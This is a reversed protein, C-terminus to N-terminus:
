EGDSSDSSASAVEVTGYASGAFFATIQYDGVQSNGGAGSVREALFHFTRNGAAVPFVKTIGVTQVYSGSPATSPTQVDHDEGDGFATSSTSVGLQVETQTGNAHHMWVESTLTVIVYGAAPAAITISDIAQVTGDLQPFSGVSVQAVGTEATTMAPTVSNAEGEEVFDSSSMGELAGADVVQNDALRHMFAAMQERTVFDKPCYLTNAPPNCGKTVDADALWAIDAHFTNSDPVDTFSHSAMVALPAVLLVALAVAFTILRKRHDPASM